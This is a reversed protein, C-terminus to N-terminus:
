LDSSDDYTVALVNERPVWVRRGNQKLVVADPGLELIQGHLSMSVGNHNDTLVPTPLDYAKGLVDSRFYVSGRRPPDFVEQTGSGANTVDSGEYNICATQALIAAVGLAIAARTFHHGM